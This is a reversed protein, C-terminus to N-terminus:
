FPLDYFITRYIKMLPERRRREFNQGIPIRYREEFFRKISTDRNPLFYDHAILGALFAVLRKIDPKDNKHKAQWHLDEGLDGSKVLRTELERFKDFMRSRFIEEPSISKLETPPDAPEITTPAATITKKEVPFYSDLVSASFRSMENIATYYDRGIWGANERRYAARENDLENLAARNERLLEERERETPYPYEEIEKRDNLLLRRKGAFLYDEQLRCLDGFCVQRFFEKRTECIHINERILDRLRTLVRDSIGEAILRLVIPEVPMAQLAACADRYTQQRNVQYVDTACPDSKLYENLTEYVATLETISTYIDPEMIM